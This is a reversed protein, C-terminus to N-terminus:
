EYDEGNLGISAYSYTTDNQYEIIFRYEYDENNNLSNLYNVLSSNLNKNNYDSLNYRTLYIKNINLSKFLNSCSKFNFNDCSLSTIDTNTLYKSLNNKLLYEKVFYTKYILSADDYYLNKKTNTVMGRFSGYLLLLSTALFVIVITTEIITFGQKKM